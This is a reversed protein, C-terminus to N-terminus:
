AVLERGFHLLRDGLVRDGALDALACASILAWANAATLVENLEDNTFNPLIEDGKLHKVIM